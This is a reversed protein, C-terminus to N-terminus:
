QGRMSSKPKHLYALKDMWICAASDLILSDALTNEILRLMYKFREFQDEAMERRVPRQKTGGQEGLRVVTVIVGTDRLCMIIMCILQQQM